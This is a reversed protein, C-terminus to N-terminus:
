HGNGRAQGATSSFTWNKIRALPPKRRIHRLDTLAQRHVSSDSVPHPPPPSTEFLPLQESMPRIWGSSRHPEERIVASTHRFVHLSVKSVSEYRLAALAEPSMNAASAYRYRTPPALRGNLVDIWIASCYRPLGRHCLIARSPRPFISSSRTKIAARRPNASCSCSHASWLGLVRVPQIELPAM